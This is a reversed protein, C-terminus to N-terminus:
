MYIYGDVALNGSITGSVSMRGINAVPASVNGIFSKAYVDGGFGAGGGVILTGSTQSTANTVNSLFQSGFQVNGYVGDFVISNGQTADTNTQKYVFNNTAHQFGFFAYSNSGTQNYKGLIGVDKIDGPVLNAHLELLGADSSASVTSVQTLGAAYINRFYNTPSGLDYQLNASPIIPSHTKVVGYFDIEGNINTQGNFVALNASTFTSSVTSNQIQSTVSNVTNANLTTINSVNATLLNQINAALFDVQPSSLFSSVNAFNDGVKIFADRITDGTGDNPSIGDDINNIGSIQWLAM